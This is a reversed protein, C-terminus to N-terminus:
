KGLNMKLGLVVEFCVEFSSDRDFQCFFFNLAYDAFLLHSVNLPDNITGNIIFRGGSM